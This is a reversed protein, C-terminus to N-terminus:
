KKYRREVESFVDDASQGEAKGEKVMSVRRKLEAEYEESFYLDDEQDLSLILDHALSARESVSLSLVEERIKDVTTKM